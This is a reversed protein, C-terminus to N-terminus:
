YVEVGVIPWYFFASLLTLGIIILTLLGGLQLLDKSNYYGLTFTTMNGVSQTPFLYSTSSAVVCIMGLWVPNYSTGVAFTIAVPMLAAVMATFNTFVIRVLVFVIMVLFPLFLGTINSLYSDLLSTVVIVVGGKELAEALTFGAAFLLPVGWNVEKRVEKWSILNISPVFLLVSVLVAAMSITISHYAKTFWLVILLIYLLTIKKESNSVPGLEKRQSELYSEAGEIYKTKVPYMWLLLLWFLLLTLLVSPLLVIFWHLYGWEFGLMSEFLSAAYISGSAGTLVSITSIYPVFTIIFMISKSFNHELKNEFARIFSLGIPMLVTLRGMANPIIFTLSFALIIFCLMVFKVRGKALSLMFLSIRKDLNTKKVAAGMILMSIILWIIENGLGAASEEFTLVGVLPFLVIVGLSTVEAPVVETFWLTIIFLLVSITIIETKGIPLPLPIWLAVLTLTITIVIPVIKLLKGSKISIV